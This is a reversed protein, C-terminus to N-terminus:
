GSLVMGEDKDRIDQRDGDYYLTRATSAQRREYLWFAVGRSLISCGHRSRAFRVGNGLDNCVDKSAEKGNLM